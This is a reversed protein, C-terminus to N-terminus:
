NTILVHVPANQLGVLELFSSVAETRKRVSAPTMFRQAEEFLGEEAFAVAMSMNELTQFIHYRGKPPSATVGAIERATDFEGAEAFAVASSWRRITELYSMIRRRPLFRRKVSSNALLIGNV